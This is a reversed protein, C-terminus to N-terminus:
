FPIGDDEEPTDNVPPTFSNCKPCELQTPDFVNNNNLPFIRQLDEAYRCHCKHCEVMVFGSDMDDEMQREREERVHETCTDCTGDCSPSDCYSSEDLDEVGRLFVSGDDILKDM